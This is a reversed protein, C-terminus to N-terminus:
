GAAQQEEKKWSRLIRAYLIWTMCNGLIFGVFYNLWVASCGISPIGSMIYAATVRSGLATAAVLTAAFGHGIGQFFGLMPYYIALILSSFCLSRVYSVCYMATQDALGFWSVLKPALIYGIVDLVATGGVSLAVAQRAGLRLRDKRGAGYNQGAYTAMTTMLAITLLEIYNELKLGVSYAATMASGYSNVLRQIFVFGFTIILRQAIVPLGEKLIGPVLNPDFRLGRLGFNFAKYNKYMYAFAAAASAAQAIATALGAGLVSMDFVAVFLLDLVVNLLSSILLFYLSAKSDGVGRLIAAAIDYCFQFFLGVCFARFYVVAMDLMEGSVGLPGALFPRCFASGIVLSLIGCGVAMVISTSANERMEKFRNAGFLQSVVIGAGVSLGNSISQFFLGVCWTTGVASLSLEGTYNGVIISDVTNYLTQLLVGLMVPMAFTLIRKWPKGETLSYGNQM